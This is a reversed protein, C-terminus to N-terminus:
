VSTKELMGGQRKKKKGSDKQFHNKNKEDGQGKSVCRLDKLLESAFCFMGPEKLSGELLSVCM